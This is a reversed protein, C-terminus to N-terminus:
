VEPNGKSGNGENNYPDIGSIYKRFAETKGISRGGTGYIVPIKHSLKAAEDLSKRMEEFAKRVPEKPMGGFGEELPHFHTDPWNPFRNWPRSLHVYGNNFTGSVVIIQPKVKLKRTSNITSNISARFKDVMEREAPSLEPFDPDGNRYLLDQWDFPEGKLKEKKNKM